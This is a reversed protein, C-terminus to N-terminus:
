GAQWLVLLAGGEQWGIVPSKCGFCYEFDLMAVKGKRVLAKLGHDYACLRTAHVAPTSLSHAAGSRPKSSRVWNDEPGHFPVDLGDRLPVEFPEDRTM